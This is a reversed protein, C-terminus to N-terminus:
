RSFPSFERFRRFNRSAFTEAGLTIPTERKRSHYRKAINESVQSSQIVNDNSLLMLYSNELVSIEFSSISEYRKQDYVHNVIQSMRMAKVLNEKNKTM